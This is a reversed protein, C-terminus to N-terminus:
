KILKKGEESLSITRETAESTVTEAIILYGRKALNTLSINVTAQRLNEANELVDEALVDDKQKSKLLNLTVDLIVAQLYTIDGSLYLNETSDFKFSHNYDEGERNYNKDNEVRELFNDWRLQTILDPYVLLEGEYEQIVRKCAEYASIKEENKLHIALQTARVRDIWRFDEHSKSKQTRKFKPVEVTKVSDNNTVQEKAM